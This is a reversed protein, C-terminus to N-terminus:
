FEKIKYYRLAKKVFDYTVDFYEAIQWVETNGDMIVLLLEEYPMHFEFAWKNARYENKGRDRIHPPCFADTICHGLEHLLCTLREQPSLDCDLGIGVADGDKISCAKALSLDCDKVMIGQEEAFSLVEDFSM